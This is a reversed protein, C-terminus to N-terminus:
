GGEVKHMAPSVYSITAVNKKERIAARHRYCSLYVSDPQGGVDVKRAESALTGVNTVDLTIPIAYKMGLAFETASGLNQM